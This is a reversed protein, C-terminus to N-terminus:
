AARLVFRQKDVDWVCEAGYLRNLDESAGPTDKGCREWGRDTFKAYWGFERCEAVGPWEGPWPQRKPGWVAEFRAVMEPTPGNKYVDPHDQELTDASMGNEVYVCGCSISQHGCEPCREVDCGPEHFEGPKAGCGHCNKM